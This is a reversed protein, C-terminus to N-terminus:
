PRPEVEELMAGCSGCVDPTQWGPVGNPAALYNRWDCTKCDIFAVRQPAARRSRATAARARGATRGGPRRDRRADGQADRGGPGGAAEAPAGDGVALLGGGDSGWNDPDDAPDRSAAGGLRHSGAAGYDVDDDHDDLQGRADFVRHQGHRGRESRFHDITDNYLELYAYVRFKVGSRSDYKASTKWLAIRLVQLAEEREVPELPIAEKGVVKELVKGIFDESDTLRDDPEYRICGCIAEGVELKRSTPNVHICGGGAIHEGELHGCRCFALM